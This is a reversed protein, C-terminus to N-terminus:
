DYFEPAKKLTRFQKIDHGFIVTANKENAIKRLKELSAHYSKSDHLVGAPRAPPGWNLATYSADSTFLVSGTNDLDVMLCQLGEAHGPVSLIKIGPLLEYDGDLLMWNAGVDFDAKVYVAKESVTQAFMLAFALEKRQVVIKANKFLSIKGAHDYHLHSIVVYDIEDPTVGCLALQHELNEGEEFSIPTNIAVGPGVGGDLCDDRLGTDFLVKGMPHDIYAAWLPFPEFVPTPAPNLATARTSFAVLANTDCTMSGLPLIHLKTNSM